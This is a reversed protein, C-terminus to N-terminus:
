ILTLLYTSSKGTIDIKELIQEINQFVKNREDEEMESESKRGVYDHLSKIFNNYQNKKGNAFVSLGHTEVYKLIKEVYYDTKENNEYCCHLQLMARWLLIHDKENFYQSVLVCYGDSKQYLTQVSDCNKEQILCLGETFEEFSSRPKHKFADAVFQKLKHILMMDAKSLMTMNKQAM